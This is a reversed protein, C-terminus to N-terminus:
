SAAGVTRQSSIAGAHRGALALKAAKQAASLAAKSVQEVLTKCLFPKHVYGFAGLSIAERYWDFDGGGTMVIVEYPNKGADLMRLLHLGGTGPMGIDLLFVKARTTAELIGKEFDGTIKEVHFGANGLMLEVIERIDPEDDVVAVLAFPDVASRRVRALGGPGFPQMCLYAVM